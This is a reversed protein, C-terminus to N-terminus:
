NICKFELKEGNKLDYPVTGGMLELVFKSRFFIPTIRWPKLNRYVKLVINNKDCFIVDIEYKMFFTHISTCPSLYLCDFDNMKRSFMLGIMRDFASTARKVKKAITNSNYVLTEEM